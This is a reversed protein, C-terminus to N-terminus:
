RNDKAVKPAQGRKTKNEKDRGGGNDDEYNLLGLRDELVHHEPVSCMLLPENEEAEAEAEEERGRGGGMDTVAERINVDRNQFLVRSVNGTKNDVEPRNRSATSSSATPTGVNVIIHTQSHTPSSNTTSSPHNVVGSQSQVVDPFPAVVRGGNDLSTSSPQQDITTHAHGRPTSTTAHSPFHTGTQGVVSTASPVNTTGAHPLHGSNHNTSSRYRTKIDTESKASGFRPNQHRNHQNRSEIYKYDEAEDNSAIM